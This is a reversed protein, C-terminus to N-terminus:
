VFTAHHIICHISATTSHWHRLILLHQMGSALHTSSAIWIYLTSCSWLSWHRISPRYISIIRNMYLNFVLCTYNSVHYSMLCSCIRHWCHTWIRMVIWWLLLELLCTLLEVWHHLHLTNYRPWINVFWSWIRGYGCRLFLLHIVHLTSHEVVLSGVYSMTLLAISLILM